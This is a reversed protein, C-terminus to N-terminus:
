SSFSSKLNRKVGLNPIKFSLTKVKITEGEIDVDEFKVKDITLYGERFLVSVPLPANIGSIEFYESNSDDLLSTIFDM